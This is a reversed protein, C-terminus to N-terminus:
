NATKMLTHCGLQQVTISRQRDRHWDHVAEPCTGWLSAPLLKFNYVLPIPYACACIRHPPGIPALAIQILRLRM